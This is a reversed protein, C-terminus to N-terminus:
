VDKYTHLSGGSIEFHQVQISCFFLSASLPLHNLFHHSSLDAPAFRPSLWAARAAAAEDM